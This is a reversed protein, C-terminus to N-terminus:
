KQKLEVKQLLILSRVGLGEGYGQGAKAPPSPLKQFKELDELPSCSGM